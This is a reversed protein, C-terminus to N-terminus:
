GHQRRLHATPATPGSAYNPRQRLQAAPVSPGGAYNLPGSPLMWWPGRVHDGGVVSAIFAEVRERSPM